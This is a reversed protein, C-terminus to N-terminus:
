LKATWWTKPAFPRTATISQNRSGLPHTSPRLRHATHDSGRCCRHLRQCPRLRRTHGCRIPTLTKPGRRCCAISELCRGPQDFRSPDVGLSALIAGFIRRNLLNGSLAMNKAHLFVRGNPAVQVLYTSGSRWPGGEQRILCGFHLGTARSAAVAAKFGERAALMFQGSTASGNEVQQATVSPDGISSTVGPPLPCAENTQALAPHADFGVAALILLCFTTPKIKQTGAKM